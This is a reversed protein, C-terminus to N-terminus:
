PSGVIFYQWNGGRRGIGRKDVWHRGEANYVLTLRTFHGGVPRFATLTVAAPHFRGQACDPKCDDLWVAGTGAARTTTWSSWTIRGPHGVGSGNFGGLVGSGDGTYVIHAPRVQWTEAQHPGDGLLTPVTSAGVAALSVMLAASVAGAFCLARLRIVANLIPRGDGYKEFRHDARAGVLLNAVRHALDRCGGRTLYEEGM